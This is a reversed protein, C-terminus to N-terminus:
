SVIGLSPRYQGLVEMTIFSSVTIADSLTSLLKCSLLLVTVGTRLHQAELIVYYGENSGDSAYVKFRYFNADTINFQDEGLLKGRPSRIHAHMNAVSEINPLKKLILKRLSDIWENTTKFPFPVNWSLPNHSITPASTETSM